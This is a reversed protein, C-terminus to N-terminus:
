KSVQFSAGAIAAPLVTIALGLSSVETVAHIIHLSRSFAPLQSIPNLPPCATPKPSTHKTPKPWRLTVSMQFTIKSLFRSLVSVSGLSMESKENGQDEESFDGEDVPSM